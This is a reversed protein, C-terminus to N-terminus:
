SWLADQLVWVAWLPQLTPHGLAIHNMASGHSPVWHWWLVVWGRYPCGPTGLGEGQTYGRCVAGAGKIELGM